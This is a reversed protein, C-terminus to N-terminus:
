RRKPQIPSPVIIGGEKYRLHTKPDALLRDAVKQADLNAIITTSGDRDFADQTIELSYGKPAESGIRRSAQYFYYDYPYELFNIPGAGFSKIMWEKILHHDQETPLPM